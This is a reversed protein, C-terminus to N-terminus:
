YVSYVAPAERVVSRRVRKPVTVAYTMRFAQAIIERYLTSREARRLLAAAVEPIGLTCLRCDEGWHRRLEGQIVLPWGLRRYLPLVRPTVEIFLTTIGEAICYRWMEVVLRWFLIGQGRSAEEIALIAIHANRRAPGILPVDPWVSRCPLTGASDPLVLQLGGILRGSVQLGFYISRGRWRHLADAPQWGEAAAIGEFLHVLASIEKAETLRVVRVSGDTDAWLVSM